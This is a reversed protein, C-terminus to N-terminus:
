PLIMQRLIRSETIRFEYSGPHDWTKRSVVLATYAGFVVVDPCAEYIPYSSYGLSLIDLNYKCKYKPLHLYFTHIYRIKKKTNYIFFM